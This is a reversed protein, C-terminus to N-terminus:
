CTSGLTRAIERRNRDPDAILSHREEVVTGGSGLRALASLAMERVIPDPHTLFRHASLGHLPVGLEAAAYLAGATVWDSVQPDFLATLVSATDDPEGEEEGDLAGLLDVCPNELTGPVVNHLLELVQSRGERTGQVFTAHVAMMNVEPVRADLLLFVHRVHCRVVDSLASRVLQTAQAAGLGRLSSLREGAERTEALVMEDLATVMSTRPHRRAIDGLAQYVPGRDEPGLVDLMRRVLAFSGADGKRGMARALKKLIEARLSGGTSRVFSAVPQIARPGVAVLADAADAALHRRMLLPLIAPILAPDPRVLCSQLAAELVEEEPSLLLQQLRTTLVDATNDRRRIEGIAEAAALREPSSESAILRDLEALGENVDAARSSNVLAAAAYGRVGPSDDKLRERMWRADARLEGTAAARVVVRRVEADGHTALPLVHPLVTALYRVQQPSGENLADMVYKHIEREHHAFSDAGPGFRAAKLLELLGAVYRSWASRAVLAWVICGAIAVGAMSRITLSDATLALVCGALAVALPQYLGEALARAQLRSESGVGRYLMQRATGNITLNLTVDITKTAYVWAASATQVVV